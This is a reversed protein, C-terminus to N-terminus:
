LSPLLTKSDKLSYLAEINEQEESPRSNVIETILHRETTVCDAGVTKSVSEFTSSTSEGSNRSFKYKAIGILEVLTVVLLAIAITMLIVVTVLVGSSVISGIGESLILPDDSSTQLLTM